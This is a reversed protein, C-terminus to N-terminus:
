SWFAAGYLRSSVLRSTPGSGALTEHVIPPASTQGKDSAQVRKTQLVEPKQSPQKTQCKPCGGGCPCARQLQQKPMRLVQETIRDAEQEYIDGPQSIELKTQILRGLLRIAWVTTFIPGGHITQM